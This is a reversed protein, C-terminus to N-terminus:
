GVKFANVATMMTDEVLGSTLRYVLIKGERRYTVLNQSKLIKLQHSVTTQNVELLKSLDNVCMNSMSLCTIIRLRTFDAFNQFYDALRSIVSAPPMFRLIENKSKEDLLLFDGM